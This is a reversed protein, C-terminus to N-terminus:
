QTWWHLFDRRRNIKKQLQLIGYLLAEATPPCGPVYIDVPVIRDCGRIACLPRWRTTLTGAVIMCDSKGLAPVSSLASAISITAPRRRYADDRCRLLGLRFDDALYLRAAGLEDSRGGELDRVRGGEVAGPVGLAPCPPLVTGSVSCAVPGAFTPDHPDGRRRPRQAPNLAARATRTVLAM